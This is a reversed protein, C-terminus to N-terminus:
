RATFVVARGRLGALIVPCFFIVGDFATGFAARGAAGFATKFFATNFFARDFVGLGPGPRRASRPAGISAKKALRLPGSRWTRSRSRAITSASTGSAADDILHPM